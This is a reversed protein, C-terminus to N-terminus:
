LLRGYGLTEIEKAIRIEEFLFEILKSESDLYQGEIADFYRDSQEFKPDLRLNNTPILKHGDITTVEKAILSNTPKNGSM